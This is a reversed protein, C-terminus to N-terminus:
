ESKRRYRERTANGGRIHREALNKKLVVQVEDYLRKDIHFLNKTVDKHVTSKAIGFEKACQRVTCGTEAIYRGLEIARNLYSSAMNNIYSLCDM